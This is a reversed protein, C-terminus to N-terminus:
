GLLDIAMKEWSMEVLVLLGVLNNLVEICVLVDCFNCCWYCFVMLEQCCHNSSYYSEVVANVRVEIFM